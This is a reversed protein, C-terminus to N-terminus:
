EARDWYSANQDCGAGTSRAQSFSLKLVKKVQSSHEILTTSKEILNQSALKM